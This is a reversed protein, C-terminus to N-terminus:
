IMLWGWLFFCVMGAVITLLLNQRWFGFVLAGVAGALHANSLTLQIQDGSPILVSPVIIATLVAPPVYALARQLFDPLEIRGAMAFMIYRVSFTVAFMGSILVLEYM